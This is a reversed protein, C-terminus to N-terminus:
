INKEQRKLNVITCGINFNNLQYALVNKNKSLTEHVANKVIGKGIGHIIVIKEHGLQVAENIFDTTMVKASEKDFGHLDINPLSDLFIDNIM